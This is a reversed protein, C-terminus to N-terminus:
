PQGPEVDQQEEWPISRPPPPITGEGSLYYATRRTNDEIDMALQIAEGAAYVLVFQLVGWFLIILGVVIGSVLDTVQNLLPIPALLPSQVGARGQLAGVIIILLTALVALILLIWALIKALLSLFHLMRFKPM